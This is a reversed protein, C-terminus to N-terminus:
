GSIGAPAKSANTSSAESTLRDCDTQVGSSPAIGARNRLWPAGGSKSSPGQISWSKAHACVIGFGRLM